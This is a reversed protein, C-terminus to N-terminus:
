HAMLLPATRPSSKTKSGLSVMVDAEVGLDLLEELFDELGHNKFSVVLIKLNTQNLITKVLFLGLFSKGTGLAGILMHGSGDLVSTVCLDSHAAVSKAGM